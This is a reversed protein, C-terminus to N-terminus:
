SDNPLDLLEATTLFEEHSCLQTQGGDLAVILTATTHGTSESTAHATSSADTFGFPGDVDLELDGIEGGTTDL